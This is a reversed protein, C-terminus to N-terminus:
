LSVQFPPVTTQIPVEILVTSEITLAYRLVEDFEELSARVGVVGFAKALEIFDPNHIKTGLVRGQYQTQQDNLSAGFAGDNFLVIVIHIGYQVATALESLNYLFGGDGTLAVVPSRPNAVKAGLATPFAFGLTAFYSSTIYTGSAYSPFTLHAWYALNTVGAVLISDRPLIERLTDIIPRQFSTVISISREAVQRANALERPQWATTSQETRSLRNTLEGLIQTVDGVLATGPQPESDIELPDVDIQILSQGTGIEPIGSMDRNARAGVKVVLDASPILSQAAGFGYYAAGFALPHDEAIVGKGEPTTVVPAHLLEAFSRLKESSDRGRAGDGALILVKKARELLQVAECLLAEEPFDAVAAPLIQIAIDSDDTLVDPPLEIEVPRPRGTSLEHFARAVVVPIEDVDEVRKAWKTIPRFVDLQDNVQHLAGHHRGIDKLKIQGSILLVPSSASYATGIAAAANLAGPGPVVIAVGPKGTSRAYGDAMYAAAQEHRVTILRIEPANSLADFIPMIQVGPLGFVTDVGHAILAEVLVDAGNRSKM